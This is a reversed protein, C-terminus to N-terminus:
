SKPEFCFHFCTGYEADSEVTIHGGHANIINQTFTLGLGTKGNKDTYFADFLRNINEQSIGRGNDYIQVSQQQGQQQIKLRLVGQDSKMAELANEIVNYFAQTLQELDLSFTSMGGNYQKEIKVAKINPHSQARSLAKELIVYLRHPQLHLEPPKSCRLMKHIFHNIKQTNRKIIDLYLEVTDDEEIAESLQEQVLNINTLPNRVDHAISRAINSTLALKEQQFHKKRYPHSPNSLVQHFCEKIIQVDIAETLLFCTLGAHLADTGVQKAESSVLMFVPVEINQTRAERLRQLGNAKSLQYEILFVDFEHQIVSRLVTDFDSVWEISFPYTSIQVLQNKVREFSTKDEVAILVKIQDDLM